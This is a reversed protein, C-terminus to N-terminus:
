RSVVRARLLYEVGAYRPGNPNEIVETILYRTGRPLILERQDPYASRIGMWLGTSGAPVVIEMRIRGNFHGPPASGLSTSMYGAEIQVTGRLTRPDGTTGLAESGVRLFSVSHMGRIVEVSHPLTRGVANDLLSIHTLLNAATPPQGGLWQTMNSYTAYNTAVEELRRHPSGSAMIAGIALQQDPTLYIRGSFAANWLNYLHEASPNGNTLAYLTNYYYADTTLNNVWHQLNGERLPYNIWSNVTYRHAEIFEAPLLGDRIPGLFTEGYVSGLDDTDFRLTGDDHASTTDASAVSHSPTNGGGALEDHSSTASTHIPHDRNVTAPTDDPHIAVHYHGGNTNERYLVGVPQDPFGHHLKTVTGDPHLISLNLELVRAAVPLLFNAAHDRYTGTLLLNEIQRDYEQQVEEETRRGSGDAELRRRFDELYHERNLNLEIALRGRLDTHGDDGLGMVESLAHFLCDGEGPMSKWHGEPPHIGNLQESISPRHPASGGGPDHVSDFGRSDGTVPEAHPVLEPDFTRIRLKGSSWDATDTGLLETTRDAFHPTTQPIEHGSLWHGGPELLGSIADAVERPTSKWDNFRSDKDMVFDFKQHNDNIFEDYTKAVFTIVQVDTGNHQVTFRVSHNDNDIERTVTHQPDRYKDIKRRLDADVASLHAQRESYPDFSVLTVEKAKTSFLPHEIDSDGGLYLLRDGSWNESNLKELAPIRTAADQSDATPNRLWTRLKEPDTWSPTETPPHGPAFTDASPNRHDADHGTHSSETTGSHMDPLGPHPANVPTTNGHTGTNHSWAPGYLGQTGAGSMGLGDFKPLHALDIAVIGGRHPPITPDAIDVIPGPDSIPQPDNSKQADPHIWHDTGDATRRLVYGNPYTWHETGDLEKRLRRGDPFTFDTTRDPNQRYWTGDPYTGYATGDPHNRYWTGDPRAGRVMGDPDTRVWTGNSHSEYVTGDPDNRYRTGDPRTGYVTGDPETRVWTGDPEVHIRGGPEPHRYEIGSNPRPYTGNTDWPNELLIRVPRDGVKEVGVVSYAHGGVLGPVAFPDERNSGFPHTWLSVVTGRQLAYDIRHGVAELLVSNDLSRNEAGGGYIADMYDVLATKSRAIETEVETRKAAYAADDPFDDRTFHREFHDSIWNGDFRRDLFERMGQATAEVQRDQFYLFNQDRGGLLEDRAAILEKTFEISGGIQEHLTDPDFRLPHLFTVDDLARVPQKPRNDANIWDHHIYSDDTLTRVDEFFTKGLAKAAIGPFNGDIGHFGNAGGFHQAYAKEILAAWLPEGPKHRIFHGTDTGPSLHIQKDVRVWEPRNDALFRISVTGDGHDRVIETIASPNHEALNKLDALLYCDGINGQRVDEPKPGHDGFVPSQSRDALRPIPLASDNADMLHWWTDAPQKIWTQSGKHPLVVMQSGNALHVLTGQNADKFRIAGGPVDWSVRGGAESFGNILVEPVRIWHGQPTGDPVHLLVHGPDKPDRHTYTSSNSPLHHPQGNTDILTLRDGSPLRVPVPIDRFLQARDQQSLNHLLQQETLVPPEFGTEDFRHREPNTTGDHEFGLKDLLDAGFYTEGHEPEFPSTKSRPEAFLRSLEHNELHDLPGGQHPQAFLHRLQADTNTDLLPTNPKKHENFLRDLIHNEPGDLLPTNPKEHEDFLRDLIHDEPGDLPNLPRERDPSSQEQTSHTSESTTEHNPVDPPPLPTSQATSDQHDAPIPRPRTGDNSGLRTSRRRPATSPTSSEPTHQPAVPMAGGTSTGATKTNDTQQKSGISEVATGTSEAKIHNPARTINPGREDGIGARTSTGVPKTSETPASSTVTQSPNTAKNEAVTSPKIDPTTRQTETGGISQSSGHNTTNSPNQATESAPSTVAGNTAPGQNSRDVTTDASHPGGATTNHETSGSNGIHSQPETHQTAETPHSPDVSHQQNSETHTPSETVTHHVQNGESNSTATTHPTEGTSSANIPTTNNASHETSGFSNPSSRIEPNTQHEVPTTQSGHEAGVGTNSSVPNDAPKPTISSSSQATTTETNTHDGIGRPSSPREGLSLPRPASGSHVGATRSAKIHQTAGSVGGSIAGGLAGGLMRPDFEWSGTLIGNMLWGGGVGAIGAPVAGGIAHLVSKGVTNAPGFKKTLLSGVGHGVPFAVAAGAGAVAGSIGVQKWDIDDRHGVVVQYAQIGLDTAAGIAAQKIVEVGLKKAFQKLTMKTANSAIARLLRQAITRTVVQATAEIVPVEAAGFLTALAQAIEAATIALTIIIQLKAYEIQAGTNKVSSGLETLNKALEEISGDGEFLTRFDKEIVEVGDGSYSDLTMRTGSHLEPLAALLEHGASKWDEALGFMQDEDGQPWESGALYSLWQLWSPMTITM